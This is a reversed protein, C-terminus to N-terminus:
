KFKKSQNSQESADAGPGAAINPTTQTRMSVIHLAYQCHATCVSLTCHPLPDAAPSLPCASPHRLRSKNKTNNLNIHLSRQNVPRCEIQQCPVMKIPSHSCFLILSRMRCAVKRQAKCFSWYTVVYSRPCLLSRLSEDNYKL